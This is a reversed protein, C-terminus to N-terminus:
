APEVTVTEYAATTLGAYTPSPPTEAETIAYPLVSSVDCAQIYGGHYIGVSTAGVMRVKKLHSRTNKSAEIARVIEAQTADDLGRDVITVEADFTYPEGTGTGEWWEKLTIDYGLPALAAAVAARTGKVRHVAISSRIVARKKADTWSADWEDVSLAWALWPLLSEPCTAPEWLSRIPVPVASLRSCAESLARERPTSNSPLLHSSM